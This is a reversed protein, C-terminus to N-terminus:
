SSRDVLVDDGDVVGTEDSEGSDSIDWDLPKRDLSADQGVAKPTAAETNLYRAGPEGESSKRHERNPSNCAQTHWPYPNWSPRAAIVTQPIM